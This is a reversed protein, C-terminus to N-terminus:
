TLGHRLEGGNWGIIGPLVWDTPGMGMYGPLPVWCGPICVCELPSGINTHRVM